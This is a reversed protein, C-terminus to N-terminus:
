TQRLQLLHAHQFHPRLLVPERPRGPHRGRRFRQGAGAHLHPLAPLGRALARHEHFRIGGHALRRERVSRLWLLPAPQPVSRHLRDMPYRPRLSGPLQAPVAPPHQLDAAVAFRYARLGAPQEAGAPGTRLLERRWRVRFRDPVYRHAEGEGLSRAADQRRHHRAEPQDRRQRLLRARHRAGELRARRHRQLSRRRRHADGPPDGQRADQQQRHDRDERHHGAPGEPVRLHSRGAEERFRRGHGAHRERIRLGQGQLRRAAPEHREAPSDELFARQEQHHHPLAATGQAGAPRRRRRDQRCRVARRRRHDHHHLHLAQGAVARDRAQRVERLHLGSRFVPGPARDRRAPISGRSVDRRRHPLLVARGGAHAHCGEARLRQPRPQRRLPDGEGHDECARQDPLDRESRQQAAPRDEAHGGRSLVGEGRVEGADKERVQASSGPRPDPVAEGRHHGQLRGELAGRQGGAESRPGRAERQGAGHARVRHPPAERRQRRDQRRQFLGDAM